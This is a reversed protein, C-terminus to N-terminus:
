VREKQVGNEAQIDKIISIVSDTSIDFKDCITKIVEKYTENSEELTEIKDLLANTKDLPKDTELMEKIEERDAFEELKTELIDKTLKLSFNSNELMKNYNKLYSNEDKLKLNKQELDLVTLHKAHLKDECENFNSHLNLYRKHLSQKEEELENIHQQMAAGEQTLDFCLCDLKNYKEKLMSNEVALYDNEYNKLELKLEENESIILDIYDALESNSHNTFLDKAVYYLNSIAKM